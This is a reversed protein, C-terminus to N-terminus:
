FTYNRSLLKSFSLATPVCNSLKKSLAIHTLGYQGHNLLRQLLLLNYVQIFVQYLKKISLIRWITNDGLWLRSSINSFAIYALSHTNKIFIQLIVVLVVHTLDYQEKNLAKLCHTLFFYFLLQIWSNWGKSFVISLQTFPYNQEFWITRAKSCKPKWFDPSHQIKFSTIAWNCVIGNVTNLHVIHNPPVIRTPVACTAILLTFLLSLYCCKTRYDTLKQYKQTAEQM